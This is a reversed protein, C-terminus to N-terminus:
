VDNMSVKEDAKGSVYFKINRFLAEELKLDQVADLVESMKSFAITVVSKMFQVEAVYLGTIVKLALAVDRV